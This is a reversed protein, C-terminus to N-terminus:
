RLCELNEACRVAAAANLVPVVESVRVSTGEATVRVTRYANRQDASALLVEKVQSASLTTNTDAVELAVAAVIPVTQSCSKTDGYVAGSAYITNEAWPGSHNGVVTSQGPDFGCVFLTNALGRGSVAMATDTVGCLPDLDPTLGGSAPFCDVMNGSEDSFYNNNSSVLLTNHSDANDEWWQAWEYSARNVTWPGYNPTEVRISEQGRILWEYGKLFAPGQSAAVARDEERDGFPYGNWLGDTDNFEWRQNSAVAMVKARDSEQLAFSTIAFLRANTLADIGLQASMSQYRGDVEGLFPLFYAEYSVAEVGAEPYQHLANLAMRHGHGTGVGGSDDSGICESSQDACFATPDILGLTSAGDSASHSFTTAEFNQALYPHSPIARSDASFIESWTLSIDNWPDWPENSLEIGPELGGAIDEFTLSEASLPDGTAYPDEAPPQDEMPPPGPDFGQPESSGCGALVLLPLVIGFSQWKRINAGLIM